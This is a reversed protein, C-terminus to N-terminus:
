EKPPPFRVRAKEHLDKPLITEILYNYNAVTTVKTIFYSFADKKWKLNPHMNVLKAIRVVDPCDNWIEKLCKPGRNKANENTLELSAKYASEFYLRKCAQEEVYSLQAIRSIPKTIKKACEIAELFNRKKVHLDSRHLWLADKAIPSNIDLKESLRMREAAASQTKETEHLKAAWAIRLVREDVALPVTRGLTPPPSPDPSLLGSLTKHISPSELGDPSEKVCM